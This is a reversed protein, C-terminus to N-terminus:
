GINTGFNWLLIETTTIAANIPAVTINCQSPRILLCLEVALMAGLSQAPLKLYPRAFARVCGRVCASAYVRVCARVCVCACVCVYEYIFVGVYTLQM